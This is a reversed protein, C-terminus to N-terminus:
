PINLSFEPYRRPTFDWINPEPRIRTFKARAYSARVNQDPYDEEESESIEGKPLM